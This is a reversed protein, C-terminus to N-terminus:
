RRHERELASSPKCGVTYLAAGLVLIANHASAAGLLFLVALRLSAGYSPEKLYIIYYIIYLVKGKQYVAAVKFIIM